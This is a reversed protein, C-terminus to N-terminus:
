WVRAKITHTPSTSCLSTTAEHSSCDALFALGPLFAEASLVKVAQDQRAATPSLILAKKGVEKNVTSLRVSPKEISAAFSRSLFPSMQIM